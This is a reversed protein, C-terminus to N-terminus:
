SYRKVMKIPKINSFNSGLCVVKNEKCQVISVYDDLRYDFFGHEKKEASKSPRLPCRITRNERLTEIAKFNKEHLDRLLYYFKFFM